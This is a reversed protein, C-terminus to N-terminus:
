ATDMRSSPGNVANIVNATAAFARVVKANNLLLGPVVWYVGDQPPIFAIIHNDPSTVGGWEITLKVTATGTNTFGIWLKDYAATGTVATHLLTGATATATIKIPQGNTSGSLLIPTITSM